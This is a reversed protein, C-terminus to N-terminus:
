DDRLASYAMSPMLRYSVVPLGKRSIQKWKADGVQRLSELSVCSRHLLLKKLTEKCGVSKGTRDDWPDGNDQLLHLSLDNKENRCQSCCHHSFVIPEDSFRSKSTGFPALDPRQRDNGSSISSCETLITQDQFQSETQAPFSIVKSKDNEHHKMDAVQFVSSQDGLNVELLTVLMHTEPDFFLQAYSVVKSKNRESRHLKNPPSSVDDERFITFREMLKKDSISDNDDSLSSCTSRNLAGETDNVVIFAKLSKKDAQFPSSDEKSYQAMDKEVASEGHSSLM